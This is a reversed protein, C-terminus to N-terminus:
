SGALKSWLLDIVERGHEEYIGAFPFDDGGMTRWQETYLDQAEIRTPFRAQSTTEANETGEAKGEEGKSDALMTQLAEFTKQTVQWFLQYPGKEPEFGYIYSYAYRRPCTAYSEIASASLTQPKMADIFSATPQSSPLSENVIQELPTTGVSDLWLVRSIREEPLDVVLADIYPSRSYKQKGYRESYSLVLHDRARTAGVYFLCAEGSEHVVDGESEASLMGTPAS